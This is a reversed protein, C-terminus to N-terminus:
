TKGAWYLGPGEAKYFLTRGGKQKGVVTPVCWSSGGLKKGRCTRLGGLGKEDAKFPVM